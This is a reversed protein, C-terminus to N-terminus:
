QVQAKGTAASPRTTTQTSSRTSSRMTAPRDLAARIRLYAFLLRDLGTINLDYALAQKAGTRGRGSMRVHGVLGQPENALRASLKDYQFNSLAEVVNKKVQGSAAGSASQAAAEATAQLTAADKIQIDGGQLASVTGNGFQVHSGDIVLPIQGTIKGQGSAKDPAFEALVERLEVDRAHLTVAIPQAGSITFDNAGVRGGLWAWETHQVHIADSATMAYELIGDTLEMDGIKWKAVTLKQGPPTKLPALSAFAVEGSIGDAALDQQKM